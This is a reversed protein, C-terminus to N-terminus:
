NSKKQGSGEKKAQESGELIDGVRLLWDKIDVLLRLEQADRCHRSVEKGDDRKSSDVRREIVEAAKTSRDDPVTIVEPNYIRRIRLRPKNSDSPRSSNTLGLGLEGLGGTM